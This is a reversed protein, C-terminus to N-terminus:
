ARLFAVSFPIRKYSRGDALIDIAFWGERPLQVGQLGVVFSLNFHAGPYPGPPAQAQPPFAISLPQVGGMANGDLDLFRVEFTHPQNLDTRQAWFNMALTANVNGAVPQGPAIVVNFQNVGAGLINVFGDGKTTAADCLIAYDLEM